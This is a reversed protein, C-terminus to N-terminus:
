SCGIQKLAFSESLPTKGRAFRPAENSLEVQVDSPAYQLTYGNATKRSWRANGCRAQFLAPTNLKGAHLDDLLQARAKEANVTQIHSATYIVILMIGIAAVLIALMSVRPKQPVPVAVAHAVLKLGCGSCIEYRPNIPTGCASCITTVTM